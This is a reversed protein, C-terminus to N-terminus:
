KNLSRKSFLGNISIIILPLFLNFSLDNMQITASQGMIFGLRIYTIMFFFIIEIKNKNINIKKMFYAIAIFIIDILPAFIFGLLYYGEGIMPIIQTSHNSFYIRRNFYESTLKISNINKFIVNLGLTPRIFDYVLTKLNRGEPFTKAAEISMAVNYPGGLYTQLEDALNYLTNDSLKQYNRFHTLSSFCIFGILLFPITIKKAETKYFLGFVIFSTIFCLIFDFRNTGFYIVGNIIAIILSVFVIIKTPKKLYQKYLSSMCCIYFLNKACIICLIIIQEYLNYNNYSYGSSNPLIFSFSNLVNPKLIIFSGCIIFFIYYFLKSKPLVINSSKRNLVNSKKSLKNALFLFFMGCIFIEYIMIMFALNFSNDTPPSISRGGYRGSLVILLPLIVYRFFCVITFPIGFEKFNNINKNLFVFYVVIFSIPLLFMLQYSDMTNKVVIILSVLSCVIFVFFNMVMKRNM